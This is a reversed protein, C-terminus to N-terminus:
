GEGNGQGLFHWVAPGSWLSVDNESKTKSCLETGKEEKM